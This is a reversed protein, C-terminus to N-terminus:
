LNQFMNLFLRTRGSGIYEVVKSCVFSMGGGGGWFIHLLKHVGGYVFDKGGGGVGYTFIQTGWGFGNEGVGIYKDNKYRVMTGKYKMM